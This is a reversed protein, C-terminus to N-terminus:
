SAPHANHFHRRLTFEDQQKQLARRAVENAAAARRAALTELSRLKKNAEDLLACAKAIQKNAADLDHKQREIAATLKESFGHFNALISADSRYISRRKAQYENWYGELLDRKALAEREVQRAAGLKKAAEDRANRALEILQDIASSENM